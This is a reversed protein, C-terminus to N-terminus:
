QGLQKDKHTHRRFSPENKLHPSRYQTSSFCAAKPSSFSPFGTDQFEEHPRWGCYDPIGQIRESASDMLWESVLRKGMLIRVTRRVLSFAESDLLSMRSGSGVAWKEGLVM